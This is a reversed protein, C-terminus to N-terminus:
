ITRWLRFLGYVIMPASGILARDVKFQRNGGLVLGLMPAIQLIYREYFPINGGVFFQEILFFIVFASCVIAYPMKIITARESWIVRM